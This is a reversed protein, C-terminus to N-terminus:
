PLQRAITPLHDYFRRKIGFKKAEKKADKLQDNLGIKKTAAIFGRCPLGARMLGPNILGLTAANQRMLLHMGQNAFGQKMLM